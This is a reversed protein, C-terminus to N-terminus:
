DEKALKAKQKVEEWTSTKITGSEYEDLRMDIEKLLNKDGWLDIRENIEEEVMTYIAKVKKEDAYRIYDFLRDRIVTVEM